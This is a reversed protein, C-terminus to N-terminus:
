EELSMRGKGIFVRVSKLGSPTNFVLTGFKEISGNPFFACENLTSSSALRYGPPLNREFISDYLSKRGIYRTGGTDFVIKMYKGEQMASLQVTAVDLKLQNYFLDFTRKEVYRNNMYLASASIAMVIVLVLLLEILSYGRNNLGAM